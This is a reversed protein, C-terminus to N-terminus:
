LKSVPQLNQFNFDFELDYKDMFYNVFDILCPLIRPDGSFKTESLTADMHYLWRDAGEKTMIERVLRHKINLKKEGGKYTIPGGTLDIWFKLQNEIHYDLTGTEVFVSSFWQAESDNFVRKYFRTIMDRLAKEGTVSYLQWFFLPDALDRSANTSFTSPEELIDTPLKGQKIKKHLYPTQINM